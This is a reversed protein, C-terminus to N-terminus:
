AVSTWAGGTSIVPALTEPDAGISRPWEAGAWDSYGGTCVFLPHHDIVRSLAQLLHLLSVVPDEQGSSPEFLRLTWHYPSITMRSGSCEFTACVRPTLFAPLYASPTSYGCTTTMLPPPPLREFADPSCEENKSVGPRAEHESKAQKSGTRM